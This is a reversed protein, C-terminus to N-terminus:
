TEPVSIRRRYQGPTIGYTQRFVHSLYQSHSFGIRHAIRELTMDTDVLLERAINLRLRLLEEQISRGIAHRMRRELSRRGIQAAEVVDSVQIGNLIHARMFKLARAVFEDKIATIDSSARTTVAIPPILIPEAPAPEGAMLRDLLAAAQYGIRAGASHVSSLPPVAMECLSEDDGVGVVAIEEPVAIGSLHCTELLWLGFRDTCAFIGCPKPLEHLWAILLKQSRNWSRARQDFDPQEFFRCEHGRATVADCFGEYRKRVFSENQIAYGGFQRFGRELFHQAALQGLEADDAGVFPLRSTSQSSRVEVAPLGTAAIIDAMQQGYSRALIGDGHWSSLWHPIKGGTELFVSWSQNESIYRRVGRLINRSVSLSSEVLIAVHKLRDPQKSPM